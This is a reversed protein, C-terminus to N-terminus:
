RSDGKESSKPHCKQCIFEGDSRQWFKEGGCIRCKTPEEEYVINGSTIIGEENLEDKENVMRPEQPVKLGCEKIFRELIELYSNSSIFSNLKKDVAYWREENRGSTSSTEKQAKGLTELIELSSSIRDSSLNRNFHNSIETRTLGQPSALLAEFIRESVPDGIRDKFIYNVSSGAYDWIAIAALLHQPYILVAKDLLAYICTLRIVIAEARSTMVGVMGRKGESLVPYIKEWLRKSDKTWGIECAEKSFDVVKRIKAILLALDVESLNGGFPLYKSRQVCFWLFRNGFGNGAETDTLYRLLEEKTIHGIISIHARTARAPSNKTLIQLNGTDWADRITASLTNGDRGLVRLTSALESQFVLLRKDEIGEDVIVEQYGTIEGSKRDKLPEKKKVEDRVAWILGEGSSLGSEIKHSWTEDIEIFVKRPYSWSEGKRGKATEGVLVGFLRVPHVTAGIKIHPGDGVVSGFAILFNLLLAAPDAETHPEITRVFDGALGYLAREALSIPWLYNAKSRKGLERSSISNFVYRLEKDGLPPNNRQDWGQALPWCIDEWDRAPYRSLLSGIMSAADMNRTGWDSGQAIEVIPKRERQRIKELIWTPLAAFSVENLSNLWEYKFDPKKTEKDFHQSPPAIVYGGDARIDINPGVAKTSNPVFFGPHLFYFHFKDPSSQVTPTDPFDPVEGGDVDVVVIGSVEGTVIAINADPWKSWWHNIDKETPKESQYIKWDILPEKRKAPFISFGKKLYDLAFEKNTIKM